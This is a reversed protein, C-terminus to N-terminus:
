EDVDRDVDGFHPSADKTKALKKQFCGEAAFIVPKKHMHASSSPHVSGM